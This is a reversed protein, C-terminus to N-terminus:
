KKYKKKNDIDGLKMMFEDFPVLTDEDEEKEKRTKEVVEVSNAKIKHSITYNLETEPFPFDRHRYDNYLPRYKFELQWELALAEEMSICTIIELFDKDEKVTFPLGNASLYGSISPVAKILLYSAKPSDVIERQWMFVVPHSLNTLTRRDIKKKM